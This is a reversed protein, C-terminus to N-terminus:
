IRKRVTALAADLQPDAENAFPITNTAEIDPAVGVGELVKSDTRVDMVPLMLLSDDPLLFATAGLVAGATRTGILPIGNTRLAYAFVELGSRTGEDIIAVVPKTWRVNTVIVKGDRGIM